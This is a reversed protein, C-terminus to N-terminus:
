FFKPFIGGIDGGVFKWLRTINLSEIKIGFHIEKLKQGLRSLPWGAWGAKQGVPGASRRRGGGAGSCLACAAVAPRRRVAGM